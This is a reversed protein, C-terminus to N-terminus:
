LQPQGMDSDLLGHVHQQSLEQLFHRLIPHQISGATPTPNLTTPPVTVHEWLDHMHASGSAACAGASAHAVM